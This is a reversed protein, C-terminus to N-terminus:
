MEKRKNVIEQLRTAIKKADAVTFKWHCDKGIVFLKDSAYAYNRSPGVERIYRVSLDATLPITYDKSYRKVFSQRCNHNGFDSWFYMAKTTGRERELDNLKSIKTELAETKQRKMKGILTDIEKKTM